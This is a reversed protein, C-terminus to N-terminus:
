EDFRSLLAFVNVDKLSSENRKIYRFWQCM